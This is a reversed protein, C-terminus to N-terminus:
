WGASELLALMERTVDAPAELAPLHGSRAVRVLRSGLIAAHIRESEAPVTATDEDGVLVLTPARIASLERLVDDRSFVARMARLIGVRDLRTLSDALREVLEPNTRRTTAGLLEPVALREVMERVPGIPRLLTEALITYKVRAWSPEGRASTDFLGLAAVRDPHRAALRMGVMGGWSLGFWAVRKEGVADLVELSAAVCDNMTYDARPVSSRVHGPPDIAIVRHAAALPEMQAHWMRGSTFLSPWLVVAPGSGLDEIFLRGVRTEVLM